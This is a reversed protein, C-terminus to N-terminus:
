NRTNSKKRCYFFRSEAVSPITNFWAWADQDVQDISAISLKKTTDEHHYIKQKLSHKEINQGLSTVMFLMVLTFGAVLVALWLSNNAPKSEPNTM